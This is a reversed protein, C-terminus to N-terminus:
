GGRAGGPGDGKAAGDKGKVHDETDFRVVLYRVDEFAELEAVLLAGALEAFIPKGTGYFAVDQRGCHAQSVRLVSPAETSPSYFCVGAIDRVAEQLEVCANGDILNGYHGYLVVMKCWAPRRRREANAKASTCIRPILFTILLAGIAREDCEHLTLAGYWWLAGSDVDWAAPDRLVTQSLKGDTYLLIEEYEAGELRAQGFIKDTKFVLLSGDADAFVEVNLAWIDGGGNLRVLLQNGESILSQVEVLLVWPVSGAHELRKAVGRIPCAAGLCLAEVAREAATDPPGPAGPALFPEFEAEESGYQVASWIGGRLLDLAVALGLVLAGSAGLAMM